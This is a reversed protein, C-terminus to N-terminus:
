ESFLFRKGEVQISPSYDVGAPSVARLARGRESIWVTVQDSWVLCAKKQWNTAREIAFATASQEDALEFPLEERMYVAPMLRVVLYPKPINVSFEIKV